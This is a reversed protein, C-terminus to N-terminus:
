SSPVVVTLGERLGAGSVQVLNNDFIGTQVTLLRHRGDPGVTEVGYGGGALALLSNVPVALVGQASQTTINVTVPAQDLADVRSPDDFAITIGITVQPAGNQTQGSQGGALSPATAVTSVAAVTGPLTTKGDPMAVSVADGKAVQSSLGPALGVSVVKTTTTYDFVPQGGQVAAGQAAGGQGAGSQAAGGPAARPGTVRIAGPLFLLDGLNVVGTQPVGIAAQWREVATADAATFHGDATLDAASAYGLAVLDQELQQVDPGSVGQRMARFAPTAGYLLPVPRGDISYLAQGQTVTTGPAAISTYFNGPSGATAQVQALTRQAQALAARDATLAAQAQDTKQQDAAQDQTLKGQDAAVAAQDQVVKQQDSACQAPTAAAPCDAQQRQQDSALASQAAGLTSQDASVALGDTSATDSLTTQDAAVKNGANTVADQAQGLAQQTTTAPAILTAPPGYDITGAVPQATVLNTRVVKATGTTAAQPVSPPRPAGSLAVWAAIGGVIALGLALAQWRRPRHVFFQVAYSM